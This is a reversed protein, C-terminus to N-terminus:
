ILKELWTIDRADKKQASADNGSALSINKMDILDLLCPVKLVLGEFNAELSRRYCLGFDIGDISTLVDAEHNNESPYALRPEKQTLLDEWKRGQTPQGNFHTLVHALRRANNKSRSLLIDLDSTARYKSYIHVAQGGIVLFVINNKILLNVFDLQMKNLAQGKLILNVSKLRM